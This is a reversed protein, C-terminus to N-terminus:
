WFYFHVLFLQANKNQSPKVREIKKELNGFFLNSTILTTIIELLKMKCWGYKQSKKHIKRNQIFFIVFIRTYFSLEAINKEGFNAL